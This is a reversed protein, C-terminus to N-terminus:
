REPAQPGACEARAAPEREPGLLLSAALHLAFLAATTWPRTGGKRRLQALMEPRSLGAKHIAALAASAERYYWYSARRGVGIFVAANVLWGLGDGWNGGFAREVAVVPLQLAVWIIVVGAADWYLGRYTMWFVQTLAAPFHFADAQGRQIREFRPRYAPWRRPGVFAEWEEATAPDELNRTNDPVDVM